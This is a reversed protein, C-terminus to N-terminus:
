FLYIFSIIREQSGRKGCYPRKMWQSSRSATARSSSTVPRRDIVDDGSDTTQAESAAFPVLRTQRIGQLEVRIM